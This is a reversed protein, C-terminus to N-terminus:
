PHWKGKRDDFKEFKERLEYFHALFMANCLIHGITPLGSDEDVDKGAKFDAIHRELSDITELWSLGKAWNFPAYKKAGFTLVQALVRMAWPSILSFRPKDANKRSGGFPFTGIPARKICETCNVEAWETTVYDAELLMGGGCLLNRRSANETFHTTM